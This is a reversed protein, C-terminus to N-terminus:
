QQKKRHYRNREISVTTYFPKKRLLAKCGHIYLLLSSFLLGIAIATLIPYYEILKQETQQAHPYLHEAVKTAFTAVLVWIANHWKASGQRKILLSAYSILMSNAMFLCLAAILYQPAHIALLTLHGIILINSIDFFDIFALRILMSRVTGYTSYIHQADISYYYQKHYKAPWQLLLSIPYLLVYLANHHALIIIAIQVATCLIFNITEHKFQALSRIFLKNSCIYTNPTMTNAPFFQKSGTTKTTNKSLRLAQFLLPLYTAVFIARYATPWWCVLWQWCM